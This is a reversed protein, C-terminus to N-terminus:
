SHSLSISQLAQVQLVRRSMANYLVVCCLVFLVVILVVRCSGIRCSVNRCPQTLVVFCLVVRYM